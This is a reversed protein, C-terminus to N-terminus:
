APPSDLAQASRGAGRKGEAAARDLSDARLQMGPEPNAGIRLTWRPAARSQAGDASRPRLQGSAPGVQLSATGQRQRRARQTASGAGHRQREAGRQGARGDDAAAAVAGGAAGASGLHQAVGEADGLGAEVRRLDGVQVRAGDGACMKSAGSCYSKRARGTCSRGFVAAASGSTPASKLVKVNRM